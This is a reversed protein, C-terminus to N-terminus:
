LKLIKGPFFRPLIVMEIFHCEVWNVLIARGDPHIRTFTCIEQFYRNTPIGKKAQNQM